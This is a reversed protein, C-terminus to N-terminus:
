FPLLGGLLGRRKQQVRPRLLFGASGDELVVRELTFQWAGNERPLEELWEAPITVRCNRTVCRREVSDLIKRKGLRKMSQKAKEEREEPPAEYSPDIIRSPPDFRILGAKDNAVGIGRSKDGYIFALDYLKMLEEIVARDTINLAEIILNAEWRPLAKVVVLDALDRIDGMLRKTKQSAFMLYVIRANSFHRARFFHRAFLVNAKYEEGSIVMNSLDAAAEGVIGIFVDAATNKMAEVLEEICSVRYKPRLHRDVDLMKVDVSLGRAELEDWLWEATSAMSWSKGGGQSAVFYLKRMARSGKEVERLPGEILLKYVYDSFAEPMFKIPLRPM